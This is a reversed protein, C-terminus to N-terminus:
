RGYTMGESTLLINNKMLLGSLQDRFVLVVLIIFLVASCKGIGGMTVTTCNIAIHELHINLIKTM